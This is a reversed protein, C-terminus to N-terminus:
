EGRVYPEVARALDGAVQSPRRPNYWRFPSLWSSPDSTWGGFACEVLLACAGYRAHLDDIEM